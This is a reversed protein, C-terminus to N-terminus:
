QDIMAIVDQQFAYASRRASGPLTALKKQLAELEEPATTVQLCPLGAPAPAGGGAAGGAARGAEERGRLAELEPSM